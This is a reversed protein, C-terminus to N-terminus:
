SFNFIKESSHGGVALCTFTTRLWTARWFIPQGAAASAPLWEALSLISTAFIHRCEQDRLGTRPRPPEIGQYGIVSFCYNRKPTDDLVLDLVADLKDASQEIDAQRDALFHVQDGWAQLVESLDDTLTAKPEWITGSAFRLTSFDLASLIQPSQATDLKVICHVRASATLESVPHPVVKTNTKRVSKKQYYSWKGNEFHGDFNVNSYGFAISEPKLEVGSTSFNRRLAELFGTASTANALGACISAGTANMGQADFELVLYRGPEPATLHTPTPSTSPPPLSVFKKIAGGLQCAMAGSNQPKTGGIYFNLPISLTRTPKAQVKNRETLRMRLEAPLTDQTPSVLLWQDTAGPWYVQKESKDLSNCQVERTLHTRIAAICTDWGDGLLERMAASAPLDALAADIVTQWQNEFFPQILFRFTAQHGIPGGAHDYKQIVPVSLSNIGPLHPGRHLKHSLTKIKAQTFSDPIKPNLVGLGQLGSMITKLTDPGLTVSFTAAHQLLAQTLLSM